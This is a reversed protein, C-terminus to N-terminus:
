QRPNGLAEIARDMDEGTLEWDNELNAVVSRMFGDCLALAKADDDLHDALLALSLQNPGPGEYTWEFGTRTFRKLDYRRELPDGDVLVVLGDITRSGSYVKMAGGCQYIEPISNAGPGTTFSARTPSDRALGVM